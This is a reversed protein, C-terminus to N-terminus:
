PHQGLLHVRFGALRKRDGGEGPAMGGEDGAGLADQPPQRGHVGARGATMGGRPAHMFLVPKGGEIALGAGGDAAAAPDALRRREM